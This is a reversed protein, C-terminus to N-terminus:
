ATTGVFRALAEAPRITPIAGVLRTLHERDLTVLTCGSVAAVAAYVADAGRLGHGAALEAAQAALLDDLAVWRIFPLLALQASYDRALAADGRTRSIAGAVEIRLLTPVFVPIQYKAVWDMLARSEPHGAEIPSDANLWVSADITLM